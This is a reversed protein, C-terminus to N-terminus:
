GINYSEIRHNRRFHTLCVFFYISLKYKYKNLLCTLYKILKADTYKDDIKEFILM